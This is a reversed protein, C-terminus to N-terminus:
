GVENVSNNEPLNVMSFGNEREVFYMDIEGVNKANIKGRYSCAFENKVLEYTSASINVQGPEGNSEMRSAINVTSGWIDYAYKKKGVVGAVVPGVHIGIRLYWPDLGEAMRRKNNLVIYNQIDLSARVINYAQQKDPTPIGGACMYSDGITKIKELHYKEIINDFAIFCTNLEEVLEQPSLKDAHITFNKFDTFMVSVSEYNRPTAQGKVELEKAVESPLINLLLEEIRAKQQDLIRNTKVKARYNKFILVAILLVLVLGGAFANRALKQRKIQLESLANDKTLLNIEGQKKQLDFDFQLSALKKDNDINYITDKINSFLSQYKFASNFDASEAYSRSMKEYLDKLEQRASIELALTEAKKYFGLANKNDSKKVFVDGLGMLSKVISIKINLKKALALAQNHNQLALDFKDESNYLQGIANYANLSGENNGYAKLANNFYVMATSDEKKDFYITGINVSIAGLEQQKGLEECIPLALLYYQLAKDHTPLKNLYVGGVNNLATLMRLKDNALEAFQLSQLYNELAKVDDGQDYYVVGINNYMNSIGINNKIEKFIKLSHNLKEIAELYKGQYYYSTGINKLAYAEGKAFHINEALIKAETALDFAKVPSDTLFRTSRLLLSNVLNSDAGVRKNEAGSQTFGKWSIFLLALCSIIKKYNM